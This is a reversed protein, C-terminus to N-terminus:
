ILIWNKNINDLWLDFDLLSRDNKMKNCDYCCPVVNNLDHGSLSDVRDLGNYIFKVNNRACVSRLPISNCYICNMQSISYFDNFSLNGDKYRAIWIQRAKYIEPSFKQYCIANNCSLSKGSKLNSSNVKKFIGCSCKCLFHKKDLEKIILWKGIFMNPKIIKNDIKSDKCHFSSHNIKFNNKIISFNGSYFNKRVDLLKIIHLKFNNISLSCKAKNCYKCCTVLNDETYGKSSDIRDLGNYIFNGNNKYHDSSNESKFINSPLANCYYCKNQSAKYFYEFNINIKIKRDNLYYNKFARRASAEIPSYKAKILVRLCGCSKSNKRKLSTGLVNIEKGCDCVCKWYAQGFKNKIFTNEIVLLKEFRLGTLDIFKSM